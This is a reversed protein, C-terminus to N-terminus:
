DSFLDFATECVLQRSRVDHRPLQHSSARSASLHARAMPQEHLQLVTPSPQGIPTHSRERWGRKASVATGQYVSIFYAWHLESKLVNPVRMLVVFHPDSAM